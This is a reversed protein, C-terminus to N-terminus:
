FRNSSKFPQQCLKKLVSDFLRRLIKSVTDLSEKSNNPEFLSDIIKCVIGADIISPQSRRHEVLIALTQAKM